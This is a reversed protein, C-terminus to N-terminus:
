SQFKSILSWTEHKAEDKHPKHSKWDACLSPQKCMKPLLNKTNQYCRNQKELATVGVNRNLNLPKWEWTLYKCLIPLTVDKFLRWFIKPNKKHTFACMANLLMWFNASLFFFCCCQVGFVGLGFETIDTLFCIYREQYIQVMWGPHRHKIHRWLNKFCIPQPHHNSLVSHGKLFDHKFLIGGGNSSSAM